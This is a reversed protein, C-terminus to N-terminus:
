EGSKLLQWKEITAIMAAKVKPKIQMKDTRYKSGIFTITPKESQLISLLVQPKDNDLVVVYRERLANGSIVDGSRTGDTIELRGGKGDLLVISNIFAWQVFQYDAVMVLSNDAIYLRINEREGLLNDRLNYFYGLEMDTHTIFTIDAIDDYVTKFEGTKNSESFNTSACSIFVLLVSILLIFNKKM